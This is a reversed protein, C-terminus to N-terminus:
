DSVSGYESITLVIDPGGTTRVTVTKDGATDTQIISGKSIFTIGNNGGVATTGTYGSIYTEGSSGPQNWSGSVIKVTTQKQPTVATWASSAWSAGDYKQVLIRYASAPNEAKTHFEIRYRDREGNTKIGSDCLAYVKRIDQKLMEAIAQQDTRRVTRAYWIVTVLLIFMVMVLVILLETLTFAREGARSFRAAKGTRRGLLIPARRM